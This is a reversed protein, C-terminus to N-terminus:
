LRAGLRLFIIQLDKVERVHKIKKIKKVLNLYQEEYTGTLKNNKLKEIVNPDQMNDTLSLLSLLCTDIFDSFITANAYGFRQINELEM